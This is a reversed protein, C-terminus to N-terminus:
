QMKARHRLLQRGFLRLAILYALVVAVTLWDAGLSRKMPEYVLGLFVIGILYTILEIRNAVHCRVSSNLPM